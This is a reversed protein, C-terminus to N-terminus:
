DTYARKTYPNFTSSSNYTNSPTNLYDFANALDVKKRKPAPEKGKSNSSRENSSSNNEESNSNSSSSSKRHRKSGVVGKM